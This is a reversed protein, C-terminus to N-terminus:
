GDELMVFNFFFSRVQRNALLRGCRMRIMASFTLLTYCITAINHLGGIYTELDAQMKRHNQIRKNVKMFPVGLCFRKSVPQFSSIM